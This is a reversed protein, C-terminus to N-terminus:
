RAAPRADILLELRQGAALTVTDVTTHYGAASMQIVHVGPPLDFSAGSRREGNVTITAGFPVGSLTLHAPGSVAAPPSQSEVAPPPSGRRGVVLWAGAAVAVVAALSVIAAWPRRGTKERTPARIEPETTAAVPLPVLLETGGSILKRGTPPPERPAGCYLCFQDDPGLPKKCKSCTPPVTM